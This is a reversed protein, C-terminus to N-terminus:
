ANTQGRFHHMLQLIAERIEFLQQRTVSIMKAPLLNKSSVAELGAQAKHLHDLARKLYAVTFAPDPQGYGRAIGSLAGGLKASTVQFESVLLNLDDDPHEQLGLKKVKRWLEMAHQYCRHQLPHRLDGDRTRIWDIGERQPDLAPEPEDLAEECARNMEEIWQENAAAEEENQEMDWGMEHGIKAEAEESDGYKELLESYKATRADSERFFREYDHEDWEVKDPDKRGRKHQEIANTLRGLFDHMARGVDRARQAEEEATLQWEPASVTLQYETSEIVVRGNSESFWELYIANAIHEPPKEKRKLMSYAEEFPIDFVRTKRAATIDGVVGRQLLGLSKLHPHAVRTGPNQFTLLCGAMDPHANGKLQLIIPEPLGELWIEGRVVGKTRNDITGRVVSDHIRFAM